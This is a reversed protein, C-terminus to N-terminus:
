QTESLSLFGIFLRSNHRVQVKDVSGSLGELRGEQDPGTADKRGIRTEWEAGFQDLVAAAGEDAKAKSGKAKRWAAKTAVKAGIVELDAFSIPQV